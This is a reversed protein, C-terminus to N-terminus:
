PFPVGIVGASLQGPNTSLNHRVAIRTGIPILGGFINTIVNSGNHSVLGDTRASGSAWAIPQEQGAAGIGLDLQYTEQTARGTDGPGGPVLVLAQYEKNTSPTIETWTGSSGTMATGSSTATSTGIVEVSSPLQDAFASDPIRGAALVGLVLQARGTVAARCRLAIRTAGPIRIPLIFTPGGGGSNFGAGCPINAAVVTETGSPGIGVDFLANNNQGVVQNLGCLTIQLWCIEDSAPIVTNAIVQQWGGPTNATTASTSIANGDSYLRLFKAGMRAFYIPIGQLARPRLLRSSMPM